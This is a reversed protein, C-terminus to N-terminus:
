ELNFLHGAIFAAQLARIEDKFHVHDCFIDEGLNKTFTYLDITLIGSEEMIKDAAGNYTDLDCAYRVFDNTRSSHVLDNVPTSRVWIPRVKSKELLSVVASLNEKYKSFGVQKEGAQPYIKIDHLGCNLLLFDYDLKGSHFLENLYELVKESDGGNGGISVNLDRLAEKEGEKRSLEFVGDLMKFLYPGYHLSISDGLVFLSKKRNIM